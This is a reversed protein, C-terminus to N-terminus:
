AKKTERERKNIKSETINSMSQKLRNMRIKQKVEVKHEEVRHHQTQKM